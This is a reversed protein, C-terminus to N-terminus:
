TEISINLEIGLMRFAQSGTYQVQWSRRRFNGWAMGFNRVSSVDFIRQTSFTQYDDDTYTVSVDESADQADGVLDLRHVFKRQITDFDMRPTRAVVNFNVSDDQFVDSRVNYLWGNTAHQAVVGDNLESTEFIPWSATGATDTWEYWYNIDMDYVFSRNTGILTLIYFAHGAHRFLIARASSLNIGELSLIRTLPPTGIDEPVSSSSMRWVTYGGTFSNGVWFVTDEVSKITDNANCGIKHIYQEANTLPSGSTNNADWFFQLHRDTFVVMMNSQKALGTGNGAVMQATILNAASWTTPDDPNSNWLNASTDLTFLYTDMYVLDRTNPSPFNTTITTVTNDTKIAYLKIGDNISLYQTVAGPRTEAFYCRGTSTTLTIGLNVSGKYIQTGFVSYVNGKWVYVGRGIAAGGSPQINQSLGPRKLFFYDLKNKIVNKIPEFFGNVFRLDKGSEIDRAHPTELFPIRIIQNSQDQQQQAAAM